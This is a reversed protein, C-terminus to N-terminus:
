SLEGERSSLIGRRGVPEGRELLPRRAARKGWLQMSRIADPVEPRKEPRSIIREVMRWNRRVTSKRWLDTVWYQGSWDEGDVTAEITLRTAFVTLSGLNRVYIDGFRYSSCRFRTTAADLWSKSDLIVSPKSGVLMRFNRSTLAKLTPTDGGVWARM